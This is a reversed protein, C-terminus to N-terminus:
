PFAPSSSSRPRRTRRASHCELIPRSICTVGICSWPVPKEGGTEEFRASAVSERERTGGIFIGRNISRPPTERRRSFSGRHGSLMGRIRRRCSIVTRDYGPIKSLHCFQRSIQIRNRFGILPALKSSGGRILIWRWQKLREKTLPLLGIKGRDQVIM